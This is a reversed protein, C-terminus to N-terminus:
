ERETDNAYIYMYYLLSQRDYESMSSYAVTYENDYVADVETVTAKFSITGYDKPLYLKCDFSEEESFTKDSYFKLYETSIEITKATIAVENRSIVLTEIASVVPLEEGPTLKLANYDLEVAFEEDELPSNIVIANFDITGLKSFVKMTLRNGVDLYEIYRMFYPPLEIILRDDQIDKIESIIEILKEDKQINISLKQGEQLLEM